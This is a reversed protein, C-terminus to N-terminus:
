VFVFWSCSVVMIRCIIEERSYNGEKLLQQKMYYMFTSNKCCNYSIKWTSWRWFLIRFYSVFLCLIRNWLFHLVLIYRAETTSSLHPSDRNWPRHWDVCDKEHTSKIFFGFPTSPFFIKFLCYRWNPFVPASLFNPTFSTFFIAPHCIFISWSRIASKVIPWPSYNEIFSYFVRSIQTEITKFSVFVIKTKQVFNYMCLLYYTIPTHVYIPLLFSPFLENHLNKVALEARVTWPDNDDSVLTM